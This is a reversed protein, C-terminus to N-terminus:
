RRKRSKKAPAPAPEDEVIEIGFIAGLKDPAIRLDRRKGGSPVAATALLGAPDVARLTFLLHPEADLRVGVGYLAAAVHKCMSAVDPCTCSLRIERPAPFLGRDKDTVVQMVAGSLSGRLLEVLSDIQGSCARTVAEWREAELKSVRIEVTYMESGRVLAEVRGEEIALHVVAGNRLYSRGRPLRTEYDSYAELNRCWSKGWFTTAISQATAIAPTIARGEKKLREIDANAQKRRDAASVYASYREGEGEWGGWGWRRRSAM